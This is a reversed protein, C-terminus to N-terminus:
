LGAEAEVLGAEATQPAAGLPLALQLLLPAGPDAQALPLLQQRHGATPQHYVFQVYGQYRHVGSLLPPAQAPPHQLGQKQHGTLLPGQM